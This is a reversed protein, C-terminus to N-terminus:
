WSSVFSWLADHLLDPVAHGSWDPETTPCWRVPADAPCGPMDHCTDFAYAPEAPDCGNRTVWNDRHEEGDSFDITTDDRGHAILIPLAGPCSSVNNAGAAIMAAAAVTDARHCALVEVFRGGRSHGVAFVRTPDICYDQTLQGILADFFAIDAGDPDRDWCARCRCDPHPTGDPYVFVAGGAVEEEIRLEPWTDNIQARDSAGNGGSGHFWVVAPLLGNSCDYGGRRSVLYSRRRGAVDLSQVRCTEDTEGECPTIRWDDGCVAPVDDVTAPCEFCRTIEPLDPTDAADPSVDSNSADIKATDTMKSADVMDSSMDTSSADPPGGDTSETTCGAVVCATLIIVTTRGMM